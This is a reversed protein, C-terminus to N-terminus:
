ESRYLDSLCSQTCQLAPSDLFEWRLWSCFTRYHEVEETNKNSLEGHSSKIQQNMTLM